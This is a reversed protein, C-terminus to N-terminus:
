ANSEDNHAPKFTFYKHGLYSSFVPVMIGIAHSIEKKFANVNLWDLVFFYLLMSVLWTQLVALMNVLTFFFLERVTANGSPSFVFWRSLLYATVMGSLYALIIALSFGVFQNYIVRSVFNVGAAFGGVVIFRAFESSLVVTM